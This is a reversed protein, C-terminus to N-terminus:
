ITGPTSNTREDNKQIEKLKLILDFGEKKFRQNFYLQTIMIYSIPSLILWYAISLPFQIYSAAMSMVLIFGEQANLFKMILYLFGGLLGFFSNISLRITYVTLSILAISGILRWFNHRVLAFSRKISAFVGKREILMAHFSFAFWTMYSLTVFAVLLILLVTTIIVIVVRADITESYTISNDVARFLLYGLGGVGAIAPLALLMISLAIGCVKPISKFAAKMAQEMQVQEKMYEQSAIKIIGVQQTYSISLIIIFFVVGVAVALPVNDLLGVSIVASIGGVLIIAIAGVFLAIGYVLTYLVIAKMYKKLLYIARDMVESLTMIGM